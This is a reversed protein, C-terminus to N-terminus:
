RCPMTRADTTVGDSVDDQPDMASLLPFVDGRDLGEGGGGGGGAGEEELELQERARRREEARTLGRVQRRLVRVEELLAGQQRALLPQHSSFPLLSRLTDWMQQYTSITNLMRLWVLIADPYIDAQFKVVNPQLSGAQRFDGYGIFYLSPYSDVGMAHCLELM